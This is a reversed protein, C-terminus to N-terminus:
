QAESFKKLALHHHYMDVNQELCYANYSTVEGGVITKFKSETMFPFKKVTVVNKYLRSGTVRVRALEFRASVRVLISKGQIETM